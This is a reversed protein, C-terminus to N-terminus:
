RIANDVKEALAMGELIAEDMNIYAYRGLRGGTFVGNLEKARRRYANAVDQAERTPLPYCPVNTGDYDCPTETTLLINRDDHPVGLFRWHEIKRTFAPSPDCYNIVAAGQSKAGEVHEWSLSRYPLHGLDYGFFQDLMGTYVVPGGEKTRTWPTNLKVEVGDLLGAVLASYGGIPLAQWRDHPFYNEEFATTVPVRGSISPLLEEAGRGWQKRTYSEFFMSYLTLGMKLKWSEALNKPEGKIASRALAREGEMWKEADEPTKIRSDFQNFTLLNVPFSWFRGCARARPRYIYPTWECFRNVFEWVKPSSTHFLHPGYFHVPVGSKIPTWCNGGTHDREELVVVKHGKDSLVRACTAGTLGSGIITIM